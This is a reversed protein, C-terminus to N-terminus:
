IQKGGRLLEHSENTKFYFFDNMKLIERSHFRDSGKQHGAEEQCSGEVSNQCAVVGSALSGGTLSVFYLELPFYPSFAVAVTTCRDAGGGFPQRFHLQWFPFDSPIFVLSPNLGSHFIPTIFPAGFEISMGIQAVTVVLQAACEAGSSPKGQVHVPEPMQAAVMAFASSVADIPFQMDICTRNTVIRKVVTLQITREFVQSPHFSVPYGQCEFQAVMLPVADEFDVVPVNGMVVVAVIIGGATAIALDTM